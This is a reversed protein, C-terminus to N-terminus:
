QRTARRASPTSLFPQDSDRGARDSQGDGEERLAHTSIQAYHQVLSQQQTARRASPTPLFKKREEMPNDGRDGEERLAHTSIKQVGGLRPMKLWDGEERLAHTSIM